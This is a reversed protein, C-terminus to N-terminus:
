ALELWWPIHSTLFLLDGDAHQRAETCRQAGLNPSALQDTGFNALSSGGLINLTRNQHPGDQKEQSGLFLFVYSRGSAYRRDYDGLRPQASSIQCVWLV